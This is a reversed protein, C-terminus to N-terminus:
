SAAIAEDLPSSVVRALDNVIDSLFAAALQYALSCGLDMVDQPLQFFFNKDIELAEL